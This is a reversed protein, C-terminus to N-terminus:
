VSYNPLQKRQRVDDESRSYQEQHCATSAMPHFDAAHAAGMERLKLYTFSCAPKRM